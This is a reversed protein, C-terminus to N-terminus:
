AHKQPLRKPAQQKNTRRPPAPQAKPKSELEDLSDGMAQQEELMDGDMMDLEEQDPQGVKGASKLIGKAYKGGPKQTEYLQAAGLM